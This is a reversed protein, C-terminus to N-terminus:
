GSVKSESKEKATRGEIRGTVVLNELGHRRLVDGLFALQRQRIRKMQTRQVGAEELVEDNSNKETRSTRLMGQLFQSQYLVSIGHADNIM